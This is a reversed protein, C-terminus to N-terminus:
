ILNCFITHREMPECIQQEGLAVLRFLHVVAVLLNVLLFFVKESYLVVDVKLTTETCEAVPQVQEATNNLDQIGKGHCLSHLISMTEMTSVATAMDLSRPLFSQPLPSFPPSQLPLPFLFHLLSILCLSIFLRRCKDCITIVHGVQVDFGAEQLDKVLPLGGTISFPISDGM